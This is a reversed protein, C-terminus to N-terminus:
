KQVPRSMAHCGCQSEQHVQREEERPATRPRPPHGNLQYCKDKVHGYRRCHKCFPRPKRDDKGSPFRRPSQYSQPPIQAPCGRCQPLEEQQRSQLDLSELKQCVKELNKTLVTVQDQLLSVADPIQAQAAQTALLNGGIPIPNVPKPGGITDPLLVPSIIKGLPPELIRIALEKFDLFTITPHQAALMRLQSKLSYTEVGEIFQEQLTQDADAAERSDVHIVAKLAEQLSLAFDRLSEGPQQKRGFFRMKLESVTRIDFTAQLRELIQEATRKESHPWSKVERLAAGQLQGILIEVKQEPSVSYLRFTALMKERFDKLTHPEGKYCPFWLAGLFYPMSLPMVSTASTASGSLCTQESVSNDTM